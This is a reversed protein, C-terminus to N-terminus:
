GVGKVCRSLFFALIHYLFDLARMSPNSLTIIPTLHSILKMNAIQYLELGADNIDNECTETVLDVLDVAMGRARRGVTNRVRVKMVSRVVKRRAMRAGRRFIGPGACVSRVGTGSM